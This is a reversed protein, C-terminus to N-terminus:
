GGRNLRVARDQDAAVTVAASEDGQAAPQLPQCHRKGPQCTPPPSSSPPPSSTPPPSSSHCDGNLPSPNCTPSSHPHPASSQSTTPKPSTTAAQNPGMMDWETGGFGPAAFQEVPLPLFEKQAFAHWILAPWDGGYGGLGGLSNLTEANAATSANQNNTFIGIALSYQPIAGLFFASQATSTTGTKGIMPRGDSM